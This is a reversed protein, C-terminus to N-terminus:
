APKGEDVKTVLGRLEFISIMPLFRTFLFICAIFFGLSGALAGWDWITARYM